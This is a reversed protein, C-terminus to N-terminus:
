GGSQGRRIAEAVARHLREHVEVNARRDTRVVLVLVGGAVHAEAMALPLDTVTRAAVGYSAALAALDLGHPTGFVQEFLGPAV